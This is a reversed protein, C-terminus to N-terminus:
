EPLYLNANAEFEKQAAAYDDPNGIDLWRCEPKISLVMENKNILTTVLQPFDMREGPPIYKLVEKSFGYIGMSVDFTYSPKENYNTIRNEEISLVGLDINITKTHTAVTLAANNHIHESFFSDFNMTTFLDGNLVLVNEPFDHVLKLPAATGLPKEEKVWQFVVGKAILPHNHFYAMLLESLHGTAFVLRMFGADVLQRVLVEVVPMEGIPVLPKPFIATYPALRTGKGGALIVATKM